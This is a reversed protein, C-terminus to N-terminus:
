ASPPSPTASRARLMNAALSDRLTSLPMGLIIPPGTPAIRVPAYRQAAQMM